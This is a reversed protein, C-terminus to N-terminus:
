TSEGFDRFSKSGYNGGALFSGFNNCARGSEDGCVNNVGGQRENAAHYHPDGETESAVFGERIQGASALTFECFQM